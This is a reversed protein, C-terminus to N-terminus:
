QVQVPQARRHGPDAPRDDRHAARRGRGEWRSLGAEPLLRAQPVAIGIFIGLTFGVLGVVANLDGGGIRLVMRLPCGLFALAGIM